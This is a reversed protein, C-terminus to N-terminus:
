ARHLIAPGSVLRRAAYRQFALKLAQVDEEFSWRNVIDLSAQGMRNRLEANELVQALSKSLQGVDEAPYIFGNVGHKVLDRCAGVRDSAIIPRAANMVENIVLGWPEFNSPMVFVDCLDFFAPLETQNKFGLFKISSWGLATARAELSPRSEGDGVFLLYPDPERRRDVSLKSYANLLDEPRKRGFLKGVFLIVTRKPDLGLEARFRERNVSSEKCRSQFFHNDVAYPMTVIRSPDVGLSSYYERNFTGIALFCDVVRRAVAFLARKSVRRMPSRPKSFEHVEDRVFVGIGRRRASVVSRWNFLRAYGHLWLVDFKEQGLHEALGYNWPRAFSIRQSNGVSPLFEFDYGDLLPVDWHLSRQFGPDVFSRTSFDSCFYVKLDIGPENAIRRLLPAQYQIPHSVLYAIRM